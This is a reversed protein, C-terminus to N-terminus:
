RAAIVGAWSAGGAPPTGGHQGWSRPGAPKTKALGPRTDLLAQAAARVADADVADNEGYFGALEAKGVDWLDAPVELMDAVLAECERRQYGTVREALADREAETKRLQVRWRAAESNASERQSAAPQEPQPQPSHPASQESLEDGPAQQAGDAQPQTTNNDAM